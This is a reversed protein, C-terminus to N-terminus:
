LITWNTSKMEPDFPLDLEMMEHFSFKKEEFKTDTKLVFYFLKNIEKDEFGLDMLKSKYFKMLKPKHVVDVMFLLAFQCYDTDKFTSENFDLMKSKFRKIDKHLGDLMNWQVNSM